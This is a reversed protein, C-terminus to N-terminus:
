PKKQYKKCKKNKSNNKRTKKNKKMKGGRKGRFFEKVKVSFMDQDLTKPISSDKTVKDFNIMFIKNEKIPEGNAHRQISGDPNTKIRSALIFEVDILYINNDFCTKVGKRM